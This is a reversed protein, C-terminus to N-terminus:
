AFPVGLWTMFRWLFVFCVLGALVAVGVAVAAVASTHNIRLYDRAFCRWWWVTSFLVPFAAVLALPEGWYNLANWPIVGFKEAAAALVFAAPMPLSAVVCWPAAYSIARLIPRRQVKARSLTEGLSLFVVCTLGHVFLPTILMWWLPVTQGFAMPFVSFPFIAAEVVSYRSMWWASYGFM